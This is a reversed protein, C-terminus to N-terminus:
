VRYLCNKDPHSPARLYLQQKESLQKVELPFFFVTYILIYLAGFARLTVLYQSCIVLVILSLSLTISLTRIITDPQLDEVSTESLKASQSAHLEILFIETFQRQTLWFASAPTCEWLDCVHPLKRWKLIPGFAALKSLKFSSLSCSSLFVILPTLSCTLSLSCAICPFILFVTLICNWLIKSFSQFIAM